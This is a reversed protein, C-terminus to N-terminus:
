TAFVHELRVHWQEETAPAVTERAALALAAVAAQYHATAEDFHGAARQARIQAKWRPRDIATALAIPVPPNTALIETPEVDLLPTLHLADDPTLPFQSRILQLREIPARGLANTVAPWDVDAADVLDALSRPSESETRWHASTLWEFRDALDERYEYRADAHGDFPMGLHADSVKEQEHERIARRIEVLSDLNLEFWYRDFVALPVSSESGFSLAIPGPILEFATEAILTRDDVYDPDARLPVVRFYDDELRWVLALESIDDWTLRWVEGPTPRDRREPVHRVPQREMRVEDPPEIPEDASAVLRQCAACERLHEDIPLSPRVAEDSDLWSVLELETPHQGNTSVSEREPKGTRYVVMKLRMVTSLRGSIPM